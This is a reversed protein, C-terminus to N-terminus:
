VAIMTAIKEAIKGKEDQMNFVMIKNWENRL